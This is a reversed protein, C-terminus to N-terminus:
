VPRVGRSARLIPLARRRQHGRQRHRARRSQSPRTPAWRERGARPGRACRTRTSRPPYSRCRSRCRYRGCSSVRSRRCRSRDSLVPSLLVVFVFLLVFAPTTTPDRPVSL